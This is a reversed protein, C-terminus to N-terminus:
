DESLAGGTKECCEPECTTGPLEFELTAHVVCAERLAQKLKCKISEMNAFDRVVIHATLATETTSLAWIHMHHFSVVGPTQTIITGIEDYSTSKPVGDLSLRLSDRLLGWTSLVIMVAIFMGILPDIIYWGTYMIVIGSVGVGVSVLADAAM